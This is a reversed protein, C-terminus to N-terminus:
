RQKFFWGPGQTSKGFHGGWAWMEKEAVNRLNNKIILPAPELGVTGIGWLYEAFISCLEKGIQTREEEDLTTQMRKVLGELDLEKIWEPPEEGAEGNTIYWKRWQSAWRSGYMNSFYFWNPDGLFKPDELASMGQTIVDFDSTELREWWLAFAKADLDVKVGVGEWYEKVLESTKDRVASGTWLALIIELRKGDPRLRYGEKDRKSLGMEDLLRNAEKPDYEAYAKAFKEEYFRSSPLVTAQRPEALGLFVTENIEERNIALSMAHKFRVDQFIKRLVPDKHNLNFAYIVTAGTVGDWLLVRYDGKERNEMYLPYDSLTLRGAAYDVEGSIAKLTYVETNEALEGSVKDIYPLQNGEEDVMWFYPNREYFIHTTTKSVMKWATLVPIDFDRKIGVANVSNFLQWWADFGKEKAIENAKPNYKIHFDKLYHQPYNRWNASYLKYQMLPDPQVFHIRITYDDVKEMRMPEGGPSWMAPKVPTLEDNLFIDEYWFMIDDATAPVGDSWRVGKKLYLTFTKGDESLEWTALVPVMTSYDASITAFTSNGASVGMIMTLSSLWMPSTSIGRLTGGYQGIEEVTALVVPEEPLREEVSPIEGAAVKTRLMPAESYKEIKGGTLREYEGVSTYMNRGALVSTVGSLCIAGSLLVIMLKRM